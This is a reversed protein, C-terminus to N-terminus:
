RRKGGRIWCPGVWVTCHLWAEMKGCWGDYKTVKKIYIMGPPLAWPVLQVKRPKRAFGMSFSILPVGKTPSFFIIQRSFDSKGEPLCVYVYLFSHFIVVKIPLDVM